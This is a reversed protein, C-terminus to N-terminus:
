QHSLLVLVRREIGITLILVNYWKGQAILNAFSKKRQFAVLIRPFGFGEFNTSTFIAALKNGSISLCLVIQRKMSEASTLSWHPELLCVHQSGLCGCCGSCIMLHRVFPTFLRWSGTTTTLRWAYSLLALCMQFYDKKICAPLVLLLYESSIWSVVASNPSSKSLIVDTLRLGLSTCCLDGLADKLHRLLGCGTATPLIFTKLDENFTYVVVCGCVASM